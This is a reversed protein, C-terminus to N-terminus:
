VTVFVPRCTGAHKSRYMARDAAAILADAALHRDSSWSIGTSAKIRIPVGAVVELPATLTDVLEQVRERVVEGSGGNNLVILFEDGGLRGVIDGPRTGRRLLAAAHALLQDGVTHGFTDNVEKFGDLDVFVVAVGGTGKRTAVLAEDLAEIVASRNLCGTLEDTTARRELERRLVFADSIDDICIVAGLQEGTSGTLPRLTMACRRQGGNISTVFTAELEVGVGDGLVGSVARTFTDRDGPVVANVYQDITAALPEVGTLRHLRANGYVVSRDHGLHLVGSPLSDALTTLLQERQRLAEVAVMEESIDIMACFVCADPHHLWNTNTLEMWVWSGDARLHRARLRTAVGPSTLMEMWAEIANDHDDPHILDLSRMDTLEAPDYGLIRCVRQDADLIMAVADKRIQGTRPMIEPRSAFASPWDIPTDTAIMGVLIGHTHRLDIIHCTAATGDVAIVPLAAIGSRKALVLADVLVGRSVAAVVELPSRRSLSNHDPLRLSHPAAVPNGHADIASVVANPHQVLLRELVELPADLRVSAGDGIIQEM